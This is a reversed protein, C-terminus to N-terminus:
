HPHGHRGGTRGDHLNCHRNYRLSPCAASVVSSHSTTHESNRARRYRHAPKAEVYRHKAGFRRARGHRDAVPSLDPAVGTGFALRLGNPLGNRRAGRDHDVRAPRRPFPRGCGPRRRRGPRARGDRIGPGGCNSHILFRSDRCRSSQIESTDANCFVIGMSYYEDNGRFLTHLFRSVSSSKTM